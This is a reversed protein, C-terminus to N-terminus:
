LVGVELCDRQPKQPKLSDAVKKKREKMEHVPLKNVKVAKKQSENNRRDHNGKGTYGFYV